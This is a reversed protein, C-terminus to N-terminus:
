EYRKVLLIIGCITITAGLGMNWTISEDFLLVGWLMGFFITVAKSAYAVSLPLHKILQQWLFAYIALAFFCLGYLIFATWSPFPYRSTYKSIVSILSLLLFNFYLLAYKGIKSKM